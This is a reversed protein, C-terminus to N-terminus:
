QPEGGLNLMSAMGQIEDALVRYQEQFATRARALMSQVAIATTELREAIEQVSLGEIYKLELVNGYQAPLHDLILQVLQQRQRQQNAGEPTLLPDMELSEVEARIYENDEIAVVHSHRANNKYTRTIQNRAIQCIWTFLSAEGRYTSIKRIAQTIVMQAVDEAANEDLRRICFRYLRPYYIDFFQRFAAESGKAVLRALARDEKNIM